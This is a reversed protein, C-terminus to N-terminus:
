DPDAVFNRLAWRGKHTRLGAPTLKEEQKGATAKPHQGLDTKEPVKLKKVRERFSGRGWGAAPGGHPQGTFWGFEFLMAREGRRPLGM